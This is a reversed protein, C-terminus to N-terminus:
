QSFKWIKITYDSSGSVLDGNQLVVLPLPMVPSRDNLTQKVSGTDSDWVYITGLETGSVLDGNKLLTLSTVFNNDV